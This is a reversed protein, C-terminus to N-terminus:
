TSSWGAFSDYDPSLVQHGLWETTMIITALSSRAQALKRANSELVEFPRSILIRQSMWFKAESVPLKQEHVHM